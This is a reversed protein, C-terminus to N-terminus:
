LFICVTGELNGSAGSVRSLISQVNNQAIAVLYFRGKASLLEQRIYVSESDGAHPVAVSHASTETIPFAVFSFHFAIVFDKSVDVQKLLVNTLDMGDTGGAWAGSIGQSGQASTAELDDTPVYPPNFILVDVNHRLREQLSQVLSTRVPHLLVQFVLSSKEEEM